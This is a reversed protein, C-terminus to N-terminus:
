KEVAGILRRRRVLGLGLLGLGAGGLGAEYPKSGAWPEGTHVVTAKAIPAPAAAPPAPASPASGGAAATAVPLVTVTGPVYVISSYNSDVAGSCTSPYTGPPSASTATTSCTPQTTASLLSTATDTGTVGSFTPTIPPPPSGQTITGNSATITLVGTKTQTPVSFNAGTLRNELSFFLNAGNALGNTFNVTGSMKDSSINSYSTNPGEYASSGYPCANTVPSGGVEWTNVFTSSCVGDGDLAFIDLTSTLAISSISFGSNNLVGVLTDENGDYPGQSSDATITATGDSNLVILIACSTDHGVGPCENFPASTTPSTPPAWAGAASATGMLAPFTLAAGVLLGTAAAVRGFAAALRM